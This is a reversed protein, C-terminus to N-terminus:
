ADFSGRKSPLVNRGVYYRAVWAGSPPVQLYDAISAAKGRYTQLRSKISCCAARFFIRM